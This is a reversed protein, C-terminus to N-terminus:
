GSPLDATLCLGWVGKGTADMDAVARGAAVTAAPESLASQVVVIQGSPFESGRAAVAAVKAPLVDRVFRETNSQMKVTRGTNKATSMAPGARM